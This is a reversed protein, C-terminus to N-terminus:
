MDGARSVRPEVNFAACLRRAALRMNLVAHRVNAVFMTEMVAAPSVQAEVDHVALRRRLALFVGVM